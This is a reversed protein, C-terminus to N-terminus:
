LSIHLGHLFLTKYNEFNSSNYVVKMLKTFIDMNFINQNNVIIEIDDKFCNNDEWDM